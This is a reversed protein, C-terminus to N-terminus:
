GGKIGCKVEIKYAKCNEDFYIHLLDSDNEPSRKILYYAGSSCLLIGEDNRLLKGDDDRRGGTEVFRGYREIIENPTKGIIWDEDYVWYFYEADSIFNEVANGPAIQLDSLPDWYNFFDWLIIRLALCGVIVCIFLIGITRLFYKAIKKM